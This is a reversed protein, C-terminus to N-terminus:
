REFEPLLTFALGDFTPERVAHAAAPTAATDSEPTTVRAVEDSTTRGRAVHAMGSQWLSRMGARRALAALAESTDGAAIRAEFEASALIIEAIPIRGRFGSGRCDSCPRASAGVGGCAACIRRVLRQAVVGKLATAIKYSAVGIDVLRTIASPADNTHLTSLVLHGTLSAQIAIEATERDRIEGILVVDPDQRMISRLATAFTLGAKENV